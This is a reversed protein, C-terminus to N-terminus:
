QDDEDNDDMLKKGRTPATEGAPMHAHRARISAMAMEKSRSHGVVKDADAKLIEWGKGEVHKGLKWPM